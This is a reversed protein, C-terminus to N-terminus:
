LSLQASVQVNIGSGDCVTGMQQNQGSVTNRVLAGSTGVYIARGIYGSYNWGSNHYKGAKIVVVPQGSTASAFIIGVSPMRSSVARHADVLRGASNISAALGAAMPAALTYDERLTVGEDVASDQVAKPGMDLASVSTTIRQITM